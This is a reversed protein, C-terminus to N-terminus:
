RLSRPSFAAVQIKGAPEISDAYSFPQLQAAIDVGLFSIELPQMAVIQNDIQVEIGATEFNLSTPSNVLGEILGELKTDGFSVISASQDFAVATDVSIEGSYAMPQVDFRLSGKTPVADGNASVRGLGFNVDTLFYSDGTQKDVYRISADRIDIGSIDISSAGPGGEASETSEEAAILDSWNQLGDSNVEFRLRLADLEAIGVTVGRRLLLPMLRVSLEARDFEAFPEDGFGTAQGLATHGIEVAIWPFLQLSVEGDITLERGTSEKVAEAINERFDNPDFFVIVAIAAIAFLAALAAVLGLIIKTIRGM